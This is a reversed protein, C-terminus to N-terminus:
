ASLEAESNWRVPGQYVASDFTILIYQTGFDNTITAIAIDKGKPLDHSKATGKALSAAGIKAGQLTDYTKHKLIIPNAAAAELHNAIFKFNRDEMAEFVYVYRGNNQSCFDTNHYEKSNSKFFHNTGFIYEGNEFDTAETNANLALANRM